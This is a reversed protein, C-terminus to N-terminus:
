RERAKQMDCALGGAGPIIRKMGSEVISPPVDALRLTRCFRPRKQLPVIRGGRAGMDLTPQQLPASRNDSLETRVTQLEVHIQRVAALELRRRRLFVVTRNPGNGPCAPIRTGRSHIFDGWLASPRKVQDLPVHLYETRVTLSEVKSGNSTRCKRLSHLEQPECEDTFIHMRRQIKPALRRPVTPQTLFDTRGLSRSPEPRESEASFGRPNLVQGSDDRLHLLQRPHFRPHGHSSM